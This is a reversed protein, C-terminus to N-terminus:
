IAEVSSLNKWELMDTEVIYRINEVFCFIGIRDQCPKFSEERM